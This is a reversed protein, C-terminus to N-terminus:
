VHPTAFIVQHSCDQIKRCPCPERVMGVSPIHEYDTNLPSIVRRSFPVSFITLAPSLQVSDGPFICATTFAPVAVARTAATKRSGLPASTWVITFYLRLQSRRSSRKDPPWSIRDPCGQHPARVKENWPRMPSEFGWPNGWWRSQVSSSRSQSGRGGRQGIRGFLNNEERYYIHLSRAPLKIDAM